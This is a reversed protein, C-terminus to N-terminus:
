GAGGGFRELIWGTVRDLLIPSITQETEAYEHPAGTEVEQFLHNLGPLEEVTADPNGSLAARMPELNVEPSVQLDLSGTVALVPVDVERLTPIPDYGLFYRFWPQAVAAAQAQVWPTPDAPIGLAARSEVPITAVLSTLRETVRQVMEAPTEAARAEDFIAEQFTRNTRAVEPSLGSALMIREGQDLLVQEGTVAPGALLVIFDVDDNRSAALPAVLGGESHGIIGVPGIDPRSRLFAVAAEADDTFDATTANQFDGGSAATGRDDFRLVAIGARTLHDALVAFPKHGALTEDRDQPGSGSVLVVAPHPGPGRPMSWTGVLEFSRDRSSFRVETSEYPFPPRPTQPRDAASPPAANPAAGAIRSLNLDFRQGAQSWAGALTEGARVGQYVGGVAPVTLALSDGRVEVTGMALGTVGQDPSDMTGTLAGDTGTTIHLVITLSAGPVELAGEWRGIMTDPQAMLEGVGLTVIAILTSLSSTLLSTRGRM